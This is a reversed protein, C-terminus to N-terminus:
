CCLQIQSYLWPCQRSLSARELLPIVVILLLLLLLLLLVLLVLLVFRWACPLKLVEPLLFIFEGDRGKPQPLSRGEM